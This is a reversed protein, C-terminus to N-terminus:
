RREHLEERTLRPPNGRFSNAKMREAIKRLRAALEIQEGITQTADQKGSGLQEELLRKAFADATMNRRKAEGNLKEELEPTIEITLTM